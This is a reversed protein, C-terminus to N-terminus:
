TTITTTTTTTTTITAAAVPALLAPPPWKGFCRTLPPPPPGCTNAIKWLKAIQLMYRLQDCDKRRHTQSTWRTHRNTIHFAQESGVGAFILSWAYVVPGDSHVAVGNSLSWTSVSLRVNKKRFNLSTKPKWMFAVISCGYPLHTQPRPSLDLASPAQKAPFDTRRNTRRNTPIEKGIQPPPTSHPLAESLTLVFQIAVDAAKTERNM